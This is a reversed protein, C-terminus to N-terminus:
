VEVRRSALAAYSPENLLVAACRLACLAQTHPLFFVVPYVVSSGGKQARKRHESSPPLVSDKWYTVPLAFATAGALRPDDFYLSDANVHTVIYQAAARLAPLLPELV